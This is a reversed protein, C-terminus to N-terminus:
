KNAPREKVMAELENLREALSANQTKLAQIEADKENLKQSLGQIAALAVGGEDVTSIHKDDEGNLGFAAHFDQAVPGIHKETAPDNKYNWETLPLVAVKALVAKVDLGAFNEKADRDSTLMVGRAFVNNTAYLNGSQDVVLLTSPTGNTSYKAIQFFRGSVDTSPIGITLYNPEMFLGWRGIGAKSAPANSAFPNWDRVILPEDAANLHIGKDAQIRLGNQARISFENTTTSSFSSSQSDALVFAGEHLAQAQSGAAFSYDGTALNNAGGPVTASNGTAFNNVGGGVAANYNSAINNYGGAVTTASPGQSSNNFGGGITGFQGSVINSEGGLIGSFPANVAISNGYGGGIPSYGAGPQIQNLAGGNINAAANNSLITNRFGGAVVSFDATTTNSFGGGIFSHSGNTGITNIFGGGIASRIAGSLVSNRNGGGIASETANSQMFNNVGGSITCFNAGVFNTAALGFYYSAGGGGVTAGYVGAAAVNVPSGAIVNVVNSINVTDATPEFRAARLGKVHLELPMNDATGIFNPGPTTGSNGATQWFNGSNLGNLQAANVNTVSAGNGAFTGAFSDNTNTFAVLNGYTGPPIGGSVVSGATIAYPAPTLPQRPSLTSFGGSGNTRVAIELWRNPGPFQSGFDLSVTFLGNSVATASNTLIPGQQNGGISNDYLIVRLDYSGNALSGNDQLQGQYTFATGQARAAPLQSGFTALLALPLLWCNSKTKM